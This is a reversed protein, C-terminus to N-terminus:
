AAIFVSRQQIVLEFLKGAASAVEQAVGVVNYTGASTPLTIFRGTDDLIVEKGDAIAAGAVAFQFQGNKVVGVHQGAAADYNAIGACLENDAAPLDVTNVGDKVVGYGQKLDVKAIRSLVIADHNAM